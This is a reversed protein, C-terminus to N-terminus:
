RAGRLRLEVLEGIKIRSGTFRFGLAIKVQIVDIKCGTLDVTYTTFLM